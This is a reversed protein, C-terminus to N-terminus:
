LRSEATYQSSKSAQKSSHSSFDRNKKLPACFRCLFSGYEDRVQKSFVCHVIFIMFGQLSSFITFLYSMVVTSEEFQFFGFIWTIGLVCLQAVATGTFVKIRQLTDLDPNLDTFKQALKWITIMFFALNIAIIACAPAWFSWIFELNLWCYKETGYGKPNLFFSIAVIAAPIGYGGAMMYLTQFNTHFVLIVMRFLQVGEMLMWCFSALFFFHLFGAVVACGSKNETRSIGGLFLVIAIFLSICLHLHITTRPSQIPRILSFTLICVLLCVLSLSMGLRTILQLEFRYEVDYLAMLVALTSLHNCSCVTFESNSEVKTCGSSSWTGGEHTANWFVCTHHVGNVQKNHQFTLTVPEELYSTNRNTVSVTVVKSNIIFSQNIQANMGSYYGETYNELNAYTLLFAAAFGQFQSSDGAVTEWHIDLKVPKTSLTVVGKPSVLGQYSLLELDTTTTSRTARPTKIYPGVLRLVSEVIDLFISVQKNDKLVGTLLIQDILDLLKSLIMEVLGDNPGKNDALHVCGKQLLKMLETAIPLNARLNETEEFANCNLAICPATKNGYNTSGTHCACYHGSDGIYCTGNGCNYSLCTDEFPKEESSVNLLQSLACYYSGNTNICMQDHACVNAQLCENLDDCTVNREHHGGTRSVFGDNCVCYYYPITNHCTARPGCLDKNESCENIDECVKLRKYGDRCDCRYSGITNVCVAGSGCVSDDIGDCEDYDVCLQNRYTLGMPCQSESRVLVFVLRLAKHM